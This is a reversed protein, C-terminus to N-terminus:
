NGTPREVHDIVLLVVPGKTSELKLGLTEQLATFITARAADSASPDADPLGATATDPIFHMEVDFAGTFGTKDIVTRGMMTTLARVLEAM